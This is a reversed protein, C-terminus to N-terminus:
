NLNHPDIGDIQQHPDPFSAIQPRKPQCHKDAITEFIGLEGMQTIAEAAEQMAAVIPPLDSLSLCVVTSSYTLSLYPSPWTGSEIRTWARQLQLNLDCFESAHM